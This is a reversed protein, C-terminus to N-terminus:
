KTLEIIAAFISEIDYYENHHTWKKALEFALERKPNEVANYEIYLETEFDVDIKEALKIYELTQQRLEETILPIQPHM